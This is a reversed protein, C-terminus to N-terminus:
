QSSQPATGTGSSSKGTIKGVSMLNEPTPSDGSEVLSVNMDAGQGLHPLIPLLSNSVM